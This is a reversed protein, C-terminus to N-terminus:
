NNTETDSNGTQTENDLDTQGGTKDFGLITRTIPSQKIENWSHTVKTGFALILALLLGFALSTTSLTGTATGVVLYATLIALSALSLVRVPAKRIHNVTTEILRHIRSSIWAPVVSDLVNDLLELFPNVSLTERLDIVVVNPEPEKTLWGYLWSNRVPNEVDEILDLIFSTEQVAKLSMPTTKIRQTLWSYKTATFLKNLTESTRSNKYITEPSNM